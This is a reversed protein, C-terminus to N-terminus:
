MCWFLSCSFKICTWTFTFYDRYLDPCAKLTGPTQPEWSKMVIPVYLDYPQRGLAGTVKVM